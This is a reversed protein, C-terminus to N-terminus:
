GYVQPDPIPALSLKASLKSRFTVLLAVSPSSVSGWM